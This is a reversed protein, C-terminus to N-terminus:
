SNMKKVRIEKQKPDYQFDLFDGETVEMDELWEKRIVMKVTYNKKNGSYNYRVTKIERLKTIKGM